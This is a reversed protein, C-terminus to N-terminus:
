PYMTHKHDTHIMSWQTHVIYYTIYTCQVYMFEYMCRHVTYMWYICIIICLCETNIIYQVYTHVYTSCIIRHKCDAPM